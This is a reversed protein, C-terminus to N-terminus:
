PFSESCPHQVTEFDNMKM